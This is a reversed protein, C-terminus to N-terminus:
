HQFGCPYRRFRWAQAAQARGLAHRRAHHQGQGLIALAVDPGPGIVAQGAHVADAQPDPAIIRGVGARKGAVLHFRQQDIRQVADPHAAIASAQAHQTRVPRREGAKGGQALRALALEPRQGIGRLRQPDAGVLVAYAPAAFVPRQDPVLGVRAIRATQGVVGDVGQQGIRLPPDPHPGGVTDGAPIAVTEGPDRRGQQAALAHEAQGALGIARDPRAGFAPQELDTGIVLGTRRGPLEAGIYTRGRHDVVAVAAIPQPGGITKVAAIGAGRPQEGTIGATAEQGRATAHQVHQLIMFAAQPHRHQGLSQGVQWRVPLTEGAPVLEVALRQVTHVQQARCRRPVVEVNGARVPEVTKIHLPLQALDGVVFLDSHARRPRQQGALVAGHPDTARATQIQVLRGGACQAFPLDATAGIYALADIQDPLCRIALQPQRDHVEADLAAVGAAVHEIRDAVVLVAPQGFIRDLLHHEIRASLEPHHAVLHPQHPPAVVTEFLHGPNGAAADVIGGPGARIFEPQRALARQFPVAPVPEAHAQAFADARGFPHRRHRHAPERQAAM